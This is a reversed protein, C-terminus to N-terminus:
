RGGATPPASRAVRALVRRARGLLPSRLARPDGRGCTASQRWGRSRSSLDHPATRSLTKLGPACGSGNPRVGNRGCASAIRLVEMAEPDDLPPMITPLRRAALSKGAGPPGLILMGHGGAAVAELARRLSPQGRLEELDIGLRPVVEPDLPEQTYSPESTTGLLRLDGLSDIPVVRCSHAGLAAPMAAEAASARAVVIKELGLEGAREAMAIAGPVARVSGDLALEAAMACGRLSDGPLQATSVLIGAAIALDFGPGAKRLDAPALSAVIRSDPFEFGSSKVASRVRERSERVATDPLGVLAFAPLGNAVDVEVTVDFAEVGLLTFTHVRAIM